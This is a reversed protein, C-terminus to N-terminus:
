EQTEPCRSLIWARDSLPKASKDHELQKRIQWITLSRLDQIVKEDEREKRKQAKEAAEDALM